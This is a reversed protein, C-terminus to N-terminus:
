RAEHKFQINRSTSDIKIAEAVPVPTGDTLSFANGKFEVNEVCELQVSVEGNFSIENNEFLINGTIPKGSLADRFHRTRLVLPTKSTGSIRNGRIQLDQPFPGEYFSGVENSIEVAHGAVGDIVNNEIVGQCRALVAHRRKLGFHNNRVVFGSNVYSLNYFQTSIVDKHPTMTGVVVDQVPRDLRITKGEAEVVRFKTEWTGATPNFVGVEDGSHFVGGTMRFRDPALVVEAMLADASLNIGDDLLGEIRCNEIVPGIRNNKCHVMDRWSAILHDSGPLWTVTCGRITVQGENHRVGCIIGPRLVHFILNELLIDSSERVQINQESMWGTNKFKFFEKKTRQFRPFIFRDGPALGAIEKKYSELVTIQFNRDDGTEMPSVKKIFLHDAMGTKPRRSGAQMVVGWRWATVPNHREDWESEDPLVSAPNGFFHGEEAMWQESPPLMYGKEINLLFAGEDPQISVITGQVFPFPDYQVTFNKFVINRSGFFRAIGHSPDILLTAGRGDVELNEMGSFDFQADCEDQKGLRYTKESFLLTAQQGDLQRIARLAKKLALVDNHMGDGVAGFEELSFVREAAPQLSSCGGLLLGWGIMCALCATKWSNLMEVETGQTNMQKM